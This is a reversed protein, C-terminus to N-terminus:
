VVQSAKVSIADGNEFHLGFVNEEKRDEHQNADANSREAVSTIAVL